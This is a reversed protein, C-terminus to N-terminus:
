LLIGSSGDALLAEALTAPRCVAAGLVEEVVGVDARAGDGSAGLPREVRDRAVVVAAHWAAHAACASIALSLAPRLRTLLLEQVHHTSRFVVVSAHWRYESAAIADFSKSSQSPQTPVPGDAHGPIVPAGFSDSAVRAIVGL